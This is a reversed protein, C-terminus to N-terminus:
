SEDEQPSPPPPGPPLPPQPEPEPSPPPPPTPEPTAPPEAPSAPSVPVSPTTDSGAPPQPTPEPGPPVNPNPNPPVPGPTPSPPSPAPPYSPPFPYTSPAPYISAPSPGRGPVQVRSQGYQDIYRFVNPDGPVGEMGQYIRVEEVQSQPGTMPQGTVQPMLNNFLSNLLNTVPYPNKVWRKRLSVNFYRPLGHYAMRGSKKFLFGVIDVCSLFLKDGKCLPGVGNEDLLVTTLTNTFQLTTPTQDGSQFSGFYRSNENKSPDPGWIEVPFYGDRTLKAKATPDLGQNRPTMKQGTITEINIPMGEGSPYVTKYDLVLGQLDLPEGGVAFMHYNVGAMSMAAGGNFVTKADWYHVNVLSSAGVVETKVSVAEWMQLTDCTLDENLIPLPIIGVSYSPLNEPTMAKTKAQPYIDYSYTYWDSYQELDTANVGMRPNLFVEIETIADDGTVLSLVEIGGKMILKPVQALRPCCPNPRSICSKKVPKEAKDAKRKTPM